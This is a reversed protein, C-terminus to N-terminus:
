GSETLRVQEVLRRDNENTLWLMFTGKSFGTIGLFGKVCCLEYSGTVEAVHREPFGIRGITEMITTGICLERHDRTILRSIERRTKTVSGEPDVLEGDRTFLSVFAAADDRNWAEVFDQVLGLVDTRDPGQDAAVASGVSGLFIMLLFGGVLGMNSFVTMIMSMGNLAWRFSLRNRTVPQLAGLSAQGSRTKSSRNELRCRLTWEGYARGRVFTAGASFHEAVVLGACREGRM